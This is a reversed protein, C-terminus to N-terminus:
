FPPAPFARAVAATRSTVDLQRFIHELHTRVTAASIRLTRAIQANGHGAAVLKLLERQRPTLPAAPQRARERDQYAEDLHPRLLSLLMRDRADFDTRGSRSLLIRRSRGAPASLCLMAEKEIGLAKLCDTYMGTAHWERDTYFDSITTITREDGSTSPYSCHRSQWYHAWFLDEGPDAGDDAPPGARPHEQQHLPVRAHPHLDNFSVIDCPVLDQLLDLVVPPMCCAAPARRAEEVLGVLARLDQDTVSGSM